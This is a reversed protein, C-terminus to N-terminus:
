YKARNRLLSLLNKDFFFFFSMIADYGFCVLVNIPLVFEGVERGGLEM